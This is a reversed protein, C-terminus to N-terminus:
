LLMEGIVEQIYEYIGLLYDWYKVLYFVGGLSMWEQGVDKSFRDWEKFGFFSIIEICIVCGLGGIVFNGFVGSGLYVDSFDYMLKVKM